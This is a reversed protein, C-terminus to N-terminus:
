ALACVCVGTHRFLVPRVSSRAGQTREAGAILASIARQHVFVARRQQGVQAVYHADLAVQSSPWQVGFTSSGGGAAYGFGCLSCVLLVCKPSSGRCTVKGGGM